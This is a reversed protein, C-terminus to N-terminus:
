PKPDPPPLTVPGSRALSAVAFAVDAWTDMSNDSAAPLPRGKDAFRLPVLTVVPTRVREALWQLKTANIECECSPIDAIVKRLVREASDGSNTVAAYDHAIAPCHKDLEATLEPGVDSISADGKPPDIKVAGDTHFALLVDRNAAYARDLVHKVVVWRTNPLIGIVLEPTTAPPLEGLDRAAPNYVLTRSIGSATLVRAGGLGILLYDFRSLDGPPGAFTFLDSRSVHLDAGASDELAHSPSAAIENAITTFRQTVFALKAGCPKPPAEQKKASCGAIFAVAITIRARRSVEQIEKGIRM